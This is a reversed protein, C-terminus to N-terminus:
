KSKWAHFCLFHLLFIRAKANSCMNIKHKWTSFLHLCISINWNFFYQVDTYFWHELWIWVSQVNMICCLKQCPQGRNCGPQSSVSLSHPFSSSISLLHPFQSSISLSHPFPCLILFHVYFSSITLFHPFQSIILFNLPFPSFILFHLSLSSIFRSVSHSFSNWGQMERKKDCFM